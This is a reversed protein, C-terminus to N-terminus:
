FQMLMHFLNNLYYINNIFLQFIGGRSNSYASASLCYILLDSSKEVYVSLFLLKNIEVVYNKNKFLEFKFPYM